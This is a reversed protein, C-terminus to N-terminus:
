QKRQEKEINLLMPVLIRNEVESHLRLDDECNFIDVLVDYMRYPVATTYYRLIINKLENLLTEVEHDHRSIFNETSYNGDATGACLRQVYPFLVNEEYSFHEKVSDIYDDFYKVIIPNIDSHVPDLAELLNKRIHPYKYALYYDHSNHLFQAVEDPSVKRLRPQEIEGEIIFNVILLFVEPNIGSATCLEAITKDGFGLPLSFRSLVPLIDYDAEVLDAVSDNESFYRNLKHLPM